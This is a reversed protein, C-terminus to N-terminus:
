APEVKKWGLLHENNDLWSKRTEWDPLMSGVLTWFEGAHNRYRLHCLEHVIAYELVPRPAFILHWNLHIQRDQGCAGWMHKQDKIQIGRPQLGNRAGHRRIFEKADDRIRRRLWLRLSSEIVADAADDTLDRPTRILFGNRFSIEVLSGDFPEVTMRNMRGRYPIKAGTVFRYVRPQAKAREQIASVTELIWARRRHLVAEIQEDTTRDPVLLEFSNPTVTINARKATASRRLSYDIQREGIRFVPM